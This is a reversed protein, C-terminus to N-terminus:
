PLTTDDVTVKSNSTRFICVIPLAHRAVSIEPVIVSDTGDTDLQKDAFFTHVKV